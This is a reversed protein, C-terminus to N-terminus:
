QLGKKFLTICKLREKDHDLIPKDYKIGNNLWKENIESKFWNHIDKSPVDNLEPLWTKIYECDGDFKEQQSWPNFIRFWPQADTGNGFCWQHGGSNSMADYDVLKTAFYKEGLRWDIHMDKYLFSCVIMRCRNHMFGTTNLQNM